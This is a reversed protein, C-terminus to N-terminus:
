QEAFEDVLLQQVARRDIKGSELWPLDRPTAFLALHRPVKYTSLVEKVAVRLEDPGAEVGPRLVVAAAVSRFLM